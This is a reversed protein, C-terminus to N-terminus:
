IRVMIDYHLLDGHLESAGSLGCFRRLPSTSVLKEMLKAEVNHLANRFSLLVLPKEVVFFLM